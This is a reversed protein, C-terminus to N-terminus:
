RLLMLTSLPFTVIRPDIVTDDDHLTILLAFPAHNTVKEIFTRLGETDGAPEIRRRYKVEIPIRRTGVTMVFDVEPEDARAPVHSLALSPITALLAGAVSEAIHGALDSLGPEARLSTPDIPVFEQLFSARLGHDSLCLKASGRRRKLRIELPDVLRLLLTDGLFRLYHHIRQTGVNAHLARRAERALTDATPAQGVYRCALRFLEELLPADRKRGREGVRLDHQIVKKVVNENLQQALEPWAVDSLQHVLPYGGRESFWGFAVDRSAAIRRGHARLDLWFERRTLPETGNDALFPGGLDMGRFAAVETLSLVGAEITTIRGALSDRGQEIRLASSGTVLLQTTSSDVLSKLQVDWDTLNQVEDLFIYTNQGRHALENLTAGLVNAEYWDVLRLLQESLRALEPLEDCQLRLICAPRVGGDLLDQLVQLQAITKGIQRPGRVVVIPALRSRLRAHIQTVLHRRTEPLRRQPKAEWWPNMRRIDLVLPDPLRFQPFLHRDIM